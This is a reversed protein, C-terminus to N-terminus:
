KVYEVNDMGEFANDGTLFKIGLKEAIVYGLADVYSLNKKEKKMNLRFRMSEKIDRDDFDIAYEVTEDYYQNAFDEGEERLMHYYIEMLNLKTTIVDEDLYKRYRENGYFIELLAYTDFFYMM